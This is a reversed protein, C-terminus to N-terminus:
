LLILSVQAYPHQQFFEKVLEFWNECSELHLETDLRQFVNGM